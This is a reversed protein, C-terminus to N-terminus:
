SHNKNPRSTNEGLWNVLLFCSVFYPFVQFLTDSASHSHRDIAIFVQVCFLLSVLSIVSGIVSVPLYVWGCRKFWRTNM